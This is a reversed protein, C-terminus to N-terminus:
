FSTSWFVRPCYARRTIVLLRQDKKIVMLAYYKSCGMKLLASLVYECEINPDCVLEKCICLLVICGKSDATCSICYNRVSLFSDM